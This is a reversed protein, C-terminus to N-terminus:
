KECSCEETNVYKNMAAKTEALYKYAKLSSEGAVHPGGFDIPDSEISKVKKTNRLSEIVVEGKLRRKSNRPCLVYNL